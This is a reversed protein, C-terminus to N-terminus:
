SKIATALLSPRFDMYKSHTLQYILNGTGAALRFALSLPRGVNSESKYDNLFHTDCRIFDARSLAALLTDSTWHYLHDFPFWPIGFRGTLKCYLPTMFSFYREHYYHPLYNPTEIFLLGSPHLVRHVEKLAQLPDPLHEILHLMTVAACSENDAPIKEAQGQVIELDYHSRGYSVANESWECGWADFGYEGAAKVFSGAACGMDLLRAGPSLHKSLFKLIAQYARTRSPAPLYIFDRGQDEIYGNFAPDYFREKWQPTPRPNTRMLRCNNCRVVRFDEGFLPNVALLSSDSSGCLICPVDELPGFSPVKMHKYKLAGSKFDANL